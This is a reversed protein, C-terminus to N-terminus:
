IKELLLNKFLDIKKKKKEFYLTNLRLYKCKNKLKKVLRQFGSGKQKM